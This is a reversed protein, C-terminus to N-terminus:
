KFDSFHSLDSTIFLHGTYSDCKYDSTPNVNSSVALRKMQCKHLLWITTGKAQKMFLLADVTLSLYPTVRLPLTPQYICVTSDSVFNLGLIIHNQKLTSQSKNKWIIISIILQNNNNQAWTISQVKHVHNIGTARVMVEQFQCGCM